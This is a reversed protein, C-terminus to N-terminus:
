ARELVLEFTVSAQMVKPDGTLVVPRVLEVSTVLPDKQFNKAPDGLFVPDTAFYLQTVLPKHGPATVLYHIHQAVRDPYHGPMVSSFQYEAKASLPLKGRCRFGELDYHGFHDAHWVEVTANQLSNGYDDWVNGKVVLPLGPEAAPLLAGTAPANRKYFPGLVTPPTLNHDEAGLFSEVAASLPMPAAATLMGLAACKLIADRRTLEPM